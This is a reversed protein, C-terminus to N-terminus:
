RKEKRAVVADRGVCPHHVRLTKTPPRASGNELFCRPQAEQARGPEPLCSKALPRSACSGRSIRPRAGLPKRRTCARWAWWKSGKGSARQSHRERGAHAAPRHRERATQRRAARSLACWHRGRLNAAGTLPSRLSSPAASRAAIPCTTNPSSPTFFQRRCRECSPQCMRGQWLAAALCQLGIVHAAPGNRRGSCGAGQRWGDPRDHQQMQRRRLRPEAHARGYPVTWPAQRM